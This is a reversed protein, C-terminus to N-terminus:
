QLRLLLRVFSKKECSYIFFSKYSIIQFKKSVTVFVAYSYRVVGFNPLSFFSVSQYHSPALFIHLESLGFAIGQLNKFAAGEMESLKTGFHVCFTPPIVEIIGSQQKVRSLSIFGLIYSTREGSSHM